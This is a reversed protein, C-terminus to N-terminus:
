LKLILQTLYVLALGYYRYLINSLIRLHKESENCSNIIWSLIQSHVLLWPLTIVTVSGPFSAMQIDPGLEYGIVHDWDFNENLHFM